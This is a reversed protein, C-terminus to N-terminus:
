LGDQVEYKAAICKIDWFQNNKFDPQFYEISFKLGQYVFFMEKSPEPISLKRCRVTHTTESNESEIKPYRSAGGGLKIEVFMRKIFGFGQSEMGLADVIDVPGHLEVRNKLQSTQIKM